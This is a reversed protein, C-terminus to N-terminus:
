EHSVLPACQRCMITIEKTARRQYTCLYLTYCRIRITKFRVGETTFNSVYYYFWCANWCQVKPFGVTYKKFTPTIKNFIYWKNVIKWTVQSGILNIVLLATCKWSKLLIEHNVSDFYKSIDLLCAGTLSNENIQDLWDDIVRNISLNAHFTKKQWSHVSTWRSSHM